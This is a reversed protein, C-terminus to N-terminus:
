PQELKFFQASNTPAPNTFIFQGMSNFQNTAMPTWTMLNSSTLVYYTGNTKGGAGTLVLGNTSSRPSAFSSFTPDTDVTLVASLNTSVTFDPYEVANTISVTYTGADSAQVNSITLTSGNAGSINAGDTLPVGNTSWQYTLPFGTTVVTFSVTTNTSVTQNTPATVISFNPDVVTLTFNYDYLTNQNENYNQNYLVATYVGSDNTQLDNVTLTNNTVNSIQSNTSLLTNDFGWVYYVPSGSPTVSFTVNTGVPVIVNTPSSAAVYPTILVTLNAGSNTISGGPYYVIVGYNTNSDSPQANTITLISNTAGSIRGGNVINTGNTQWQYFLQETAGGVTVSFNVTAGYGVIQNTPEVQSVTPVTSGFSIETLFVDNTGTFDIGNISNTGNIVDAGNFSFVGANLTPYNTSLTTGTIFVNTSSDLAIGYGFTDYTGGLCVSYWVNSWNASIGTVFADHTGVIPSSNTALLSGYPNVTPFNTYSTETGVVFADGAQDVAVGYGIDVLSGGFVVSNTVSGTPSIKTLFVNTMIPAPNGNTTMYSPLNTPANIVPFNTSATWGTVYANGQGDVAIGNAVDDNTGGIFMSYSDPQNTQSAPSNTGNLPPFKTVFADYTFNEAALPANTIGNLYAGGPLNTANWTPFNFSATYGCVYVFNNTDVAVGNAGDINTGGLYTSYVFTSDNSEIETLFANCNLYTTFNTGQFYRQLANTTVPFNTSYTFGVAYANDASDVAVAQVYDQSNGGLYTSYILRTGNTNLETVFGSPPEFHYVPNYISPNTSILANNTPFDLSQTFGGVFANGAGDVALGAALDDASGGLYTLYILNTGTQDLKAVFADGTYTGGAYNTQAAGSTFFKTSFTGGALYICNNTDLAMIWAADGTNGGFFTSYGLVPDIILPLTHDYEGIQFAVTQSDLITYGGAITKREGDIIQYIEPKAQRIERTGIKLVLDGAPSVSINDAGEFRMEVADPNAGPAVTFDYELQRQNGHFVMNIGPYLQTVQVNAFTSLGIQWKSPDNGIFYNVKGSLKGGGAIQAASNAGVFRMQATAARTKSERLSMRVGSASIAFRCGNGSSLFETQSNNAEFYLPLRAPSISQAFSTFAFFALALAVLLASFRQGAKANGRRPLLTSANFHTTEIAGPASSINRLKGRRLWAFAPGCEANRM